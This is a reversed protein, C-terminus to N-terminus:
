RAALYKMYSTSRKTGRKQQVAHMSLVIGGNLEITVHLAATLERVAMHPTFCLEGALSLVDGGYSSQKMGLMEAEASKYFIGKHSCIMNKCTYAISWVEVVGNLTTIEKHWVTHARQLKKECHPCFYIRISFINQSKGRTSKEFALRVSRLLEVGM